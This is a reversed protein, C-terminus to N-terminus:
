LAAPKIIGFTKAHEKISGIITGVVTVFAGWALGAIFTDVNDAVFEIDQGCGVIIISMGVQFAVYVLLLPGVMSNLWQGLKKLQLDKRKWASAVGCLVDIIILGLIIWTQTGLLAKVLLDALLELNEM